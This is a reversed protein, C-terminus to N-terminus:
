RQPWRIGIQGPCLSAPTAECPLDELSSLLRSCRDKDAFVSSSTRRWLYAASPVSDLTIMMLVWSLSLYLVRICLTCTVRLRSMDKSVSTKRLVCRHLVREEGLRKM